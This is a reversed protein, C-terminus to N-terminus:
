SDSRVERAIKDLVGNVYKYGNESAFTKALEVAEDLVVNTPIDRQYQLEYTGVRLIAHEIVDVSDLARDLHPIIRKDIEMIKEPIDAILMQFYELHRGALNENRIFSREIDGPAQDTMQWQYLAQVASRRALYRGSRM